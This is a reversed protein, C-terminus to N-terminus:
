NNGSIDLIFMVMTRFKLQQESCEGFGLPDQGESQFIMFAVLCFDPLELLYISRTFAYVCVMGM